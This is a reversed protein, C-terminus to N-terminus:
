YVSDLIDHVNNLGAAKRSGESLAALFRTKLFERENETVRAFKDAKIAGYPFGPLVLDKSQSALVGLVKGADANGQERFIEFRFAHEAKKHLKAFYMEARHSGSSINVVPHYYWPGNPALSRLVSLASRGKETILNSSKSLATVLVDNKLGADYLGQLMEEEIGFRAELTGDLVIMSGSEMSGALSAALRLESAKRLIGCVKSIDGRDVGDRLRSDMSDITFSKSGRGKLPFTEARYLVGDGDGAASVLVYYESRTSSITKGEQMVHGFVRVFSLSFDVSSIVQAEGGDIFAVKKKSAESRLYHFNERSFGFTKYSDSSFHIKDGVLADGEEKNRSDIREALRGIIERVM